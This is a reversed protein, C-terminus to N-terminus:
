RRVGACLRNWNGSAIKERDTETLDAEELFRRAGGQPAFEFPYYTSFLIRDVGIVEIAWRLYRHSFMGSPTVLVNSRVYDSIPRALKAVTALKDIRELYFLIVEGWHGVIVQLDPFRDFVGSLILRLLQVGTEYHWGIGYAAFAANTADGFGSYYAARVTPQPSQAHLYLPTSLAAAVEFIPWSDPHDLNRERTRGFLMAANMGLRIVARELERAAKAPAPTALTALGQLRDPHARVTEALLDNSITQLAVADDPALNQVGPATLSLVQVDLGTEEMASFRENGLEALRRASEGEASPKLAIDQWRPDLVRWAKLVDAIVFHEELGIVRM